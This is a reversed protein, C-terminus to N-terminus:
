KVKSLIKSLPVATGAIGIVEMNYLIPYKVIWWDELLEHNEIKEIGEWVEKTSSVLRDNKHFEDAVEKPWVSEDNHGMYDFKNYGRPNLFNEEYAKNLVIVTGDSGKIWAPWPHNYHSADLALLNLEQRSVRQTLTKVEQKYEEVLVRLRENDKQLTDLILRIDDSRRQSRVEILKTLFGGGIASILALIINSLNIIEM